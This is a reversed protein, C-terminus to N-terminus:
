KRSYQGVPNFSENFPADNLPSYWDAEIIEGAQNCYLSTVEVGAALLGRTFAECTRFDGQLIRKRLLPKGTASTDFVNAIGGQYVLAAHTIQKMKTQQTTTM